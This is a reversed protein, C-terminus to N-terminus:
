GPTDTLSPDHKERYRKMAELDGGKMARYARQYERARDADRGDSRRAAPPLQHHNGPRLKAVLESQARRSAPVKVTMRARTDPNSATALHDYTLRGDDIMQRIIVRRAQRVANIALARTKPIGWRARYENPSLDHLGRLHKGTLMRFRRGCELCEISEGGLYEEIEALTEFPSNRSPM